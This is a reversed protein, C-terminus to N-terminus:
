AEDEASQQYDEISIFNTHLRRSRRKGRSRRKKSKEPETAGSIQKPMLLPFTPPSHVSLHGCCSRPSSPVCKAEGRACVDVGISIIDNDENTADRLKTFFPFRKWPSVKFDHCFPGRRMKGVFLFFKIPIQESFTLAIGLSTDEPAQDTSPENCILMVWCDGLPGRTEFRPSVIHM